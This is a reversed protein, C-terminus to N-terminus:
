FAIVTMLCVNISWSRRLVQEQRQVRRTKNAAFMSKIDNAVPAEEQPKAFTQARRKPETVKNHQDDDDNDDSHHPKKKKSGLIHLVLTSLKRFCLATRVKRM